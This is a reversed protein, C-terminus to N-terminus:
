PNSDGIRWWDEIKGIGSGAMALERNSIQAAKVADEHEKRPEMTLNQGDFYSNSYLIEITERRQDAHAQKFRDSASSLLELIETADVAYGQGEAVCHRLTAEANALQAEYKDRLDRYTEISVEGAAKDEYLSALRGKAVAVERQALKKQDTFLEAKDKELQTLYAAVERATEIPISISDLEAAFSETLLEEKVYPADCGSQRGACHYYIYKGKKIEGVYRCGCRTCIVLGRYSIPVTGYGRRTTRGGLIHQVRYFVDKSVLAEHIGDGDIGGWGVKGAYVENKLLLHIQSKCLPRGTRTRLGMEAALKALGRVSVRGEAFAEFLSRILPAREPDPVIMKRGQVLQNLYGLPARSPYIGQLAKENMGKRIEESLNDIYNKAMCVKITHMFKDTSHSNPSIVQGEKVFHLDPGLEDVKVFDSFNRYLRDTKEVLIAVGPRERLFRLMQEFSKRGAKKATEAEVFEAIVEFSNREAYEKLLRAQAPISFGEDEQEKSSVRCYLVAKSGAKLTRKRTM